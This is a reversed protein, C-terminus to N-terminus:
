PYYYKKAEEITKFCPMGEDCPIPTYGYGNPSSQLIRRYGIYNGIPTYIVYRYGYAPSKASYVCVHKESVVENRQTYDKFNPTILQVNGKNDKQKIQQKGYARHLEPSMYTDNALVSLLNLSLASFILFLRSAVMIDKEIATNIM